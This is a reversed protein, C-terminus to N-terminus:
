NAPQPMARCTEAHSQAWRGAGMEVWRCTSPGDTSEPHFSERVTRQETCGRCVATAAATSETFDAERVEVTAGGVTLYRAVVPKNM